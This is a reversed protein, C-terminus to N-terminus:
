DSPPSRIFLKLVSAKNCNSLVAQVCVCVGVTKIQNNKEDAHALQPAAIALAGEALGDSLRLEAAARGTPHM